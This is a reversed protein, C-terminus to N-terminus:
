ASGEILSVLEAARHSATHEALTREQSARAIAQLEGAELNLAEEADVSSKAILIEKGPQFFHEMGEWWDSVIPTGCAAAEFLRGSPCYGMEAM